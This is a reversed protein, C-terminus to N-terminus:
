NVLVLIMEQIDADQVNILECLKEIILIVVGIAISRNKFLDWKKAYEEIYEDYYENFEDPDLDEFHQDMMWKVYDDESKFVFMLRRAYWAFIGTREVYRFKFIFDRYKRKIFKVM